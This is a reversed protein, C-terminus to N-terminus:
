LAKVHELYSDAGRDLAAVARALDPAATVVKGATSQTGTPDRLASVRLDLIENGLATKARHRLNGPTRLLARTPEPNKHFTAIGTGVLDDVAVPPPEATAEPTSRGAENLHTIEFTVPDAALINFPVQDLM